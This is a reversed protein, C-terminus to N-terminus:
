TIGVVVLPLNITENFIKLEEILREFQAHNSGLYKSELKMPLVVVGLTIKKRVFMTQIKLLDAYIRAVNGLQICLGIDRKIYNITMKSPPIKVEDAWGKNNLLDSIQERIDRTEGKRLSPYGTNVCVSGSRAAM